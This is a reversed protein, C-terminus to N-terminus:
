IKTLGNKSGIRGYARRALEPFESLTIGFFGAPSQDSSGYELKRAWKVALTFFVRTTLSTIRAIVANNRQIAAQPGIPNDTSTNNSELGVNIQSATYGTDKPCREILRYNVEELLEKRAELEGRLFAQKKKEIERQFVNLRAM